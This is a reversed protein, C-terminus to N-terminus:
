RFLQALEIREDAVDWLSPHLQSGHFLWVSVSENKAMEIAPVFDSDGAVIAAHTIKGKLSTQVLDISLLVDIMKQEFFFRGDKDPGRRALRGLRIVFRPLRNIADLFNEMAEFREAEERTPPISKYPLCHYYYTRLIDATPHIGSAIVRSFEEFNIQMGGLERRLIKDLYGGDIFIAVRYM